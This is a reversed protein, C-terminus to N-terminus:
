IVKEIKKGLFDIGAFIEYENLTRKSGLEQNGIIKNIIIRSLEEKSQKELLASETSFDAFAQRRLNEYNKGTDYYLHHVNQSEPLMIDFGHTYFRMATLIEEGWFFIKKNPKISAIEGSGFIFAASVSRTFINNEFNNVAKQHPIFNNQFSFEKDFDTYFVDNKNNLIVTKFNEYKYAGPYASIIPNAGESIYKKYNLILKEDWNEEFKMHSDIQLYYDEGNYFQNALFRAMGVGINKPAKSISFKLNPLTPFNIENKEFYTIHIGFNIQNNKSSKELCDKITRDLEFDHYSPIQIFISSM